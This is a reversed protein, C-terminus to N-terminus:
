FLFFLKIFNKMYFKSKKTKNVQIILKSLLIKHTKEDEITEVLRQRLDSKLKNMLDFRTNM